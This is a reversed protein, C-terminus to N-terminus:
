DESKIEILDGTTCSDIKIVLDGDTAKVEKTFKIDFKKDATAYPQALHSIKHADESYLIEKFRIKELFSKFTTGQEIIKFTELAWTISQSMNFGIPVQKDFESNFRDQLKIM